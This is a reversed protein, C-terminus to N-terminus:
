ENVRERYDPDLSQVGSSTLNGEHERTHPLPIQTDRASVWIVRAENEDSLRLLGGLVPSVCHGLADMLFPSLPLEQPVPFHLEGSSTQEKSTSSVTLHKRAGM